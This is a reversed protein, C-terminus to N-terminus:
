RDDMEIVADTTTLRMVDQPECKRRPEYRKWDWRRVEQRCVLTVLMWRSGSTEM